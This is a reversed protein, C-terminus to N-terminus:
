RCKFYFKGFWFPFSFGPKANKLLNNSTSLNFVSLCFIHVNSTAQDQNIDQTVNFAKFHVM